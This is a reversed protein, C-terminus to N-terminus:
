GWVHNLLHAVSDQLLKEGKPTIRVVHQRQRNRSRAVLGAAVLAGVAARLRTPAQLRTAYLEAVPVTTYRTLLQLAWLVRVQGPKVGHEISTKQM